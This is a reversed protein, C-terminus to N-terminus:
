FRALVFSDIVAICHLAAGVVVFTHWVASQFKLSRWAYFVVGLTYVIGGAALLTLTSTPLADKLEGLLVIGSWGTALYIGVAVRDYRGPLLVKVAIGVAAAIWLASLLVKAIQIDPLQVLFPTYTGAILLYIASHDIRRLVWKAPTLPWMNYVLSISLVALLSVVYVIASAYEGADTRFFSLALLVSGASIAFVLGIVHIVGDAIKEARSANWRGAFPAQSVSQAAENRM